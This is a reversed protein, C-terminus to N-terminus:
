NKISVTYGLIGTNIYGTNHPIMKGTQIKLLGDLHSSSSVQGAKYKSYAKIEEFNNTKKINM